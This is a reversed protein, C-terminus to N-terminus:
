VIRNGSGDEALCIFPALNLPWVEPATEDVGPEREVGFFTLLRDLRTVPYNACM